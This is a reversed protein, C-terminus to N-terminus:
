KKGCGPLYKSRDALKRTFFKPDEQAVEVVEGQKTKALKKTPKLLERTNDM